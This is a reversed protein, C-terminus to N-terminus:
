LNGENNAVAGNQAMEERAAATTEAWLKLLHVCDQQNQSFAHGLADLGDNDKLYISGGALLFLYLVEYNGWYAAVHVPTLGDM